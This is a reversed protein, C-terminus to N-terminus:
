RVNCVTELRWSRYRSIQTVLNFSLFLMILLFLFNSATILLDKLLVLTILITLLPLWVIISVVDRWFVTRFRDILTRFSIVSFHHPNLIPFVCNIFQANALVIWHLEFLIQWIVLEILCWSVYFDNRQWVTFCSLDEWVSFGSFLRKELASLVILGWLWIICCYLKVHNLGSLGPCWPVVMWHNFAVSSFAEDKFVKLFM